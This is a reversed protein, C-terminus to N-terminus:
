HELCCFAAEILDVGHELTHTFEGHLGSVIGQRSLVPAVQLKLDAFKGRADVVNRVIRREVALPKKVPTRRSYPRGIVLVSLHYNRSRQRLDVLEALFFLNLSIVPDLNM